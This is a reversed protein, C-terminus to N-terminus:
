FSFAVAVGCCGLTCLVPIKSSSSAPVESVTVDRDSPSVTARTIVSLLILVLNTKSLTPQTGPLCPLNELPPPPQPHDKFLFDLVAGATKPSLSKSAGSGRLIDAVHHPTLMASGAAALLKGATADSIVVISKAEQLSNLADAVQAAAASSVGAFDSVILMADSPCTARPDQSAATTASLSAATILCPVHALSSYLPVQLTFSV